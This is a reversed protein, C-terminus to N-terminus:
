RLLIPLMPWPPRGFVLPDHFIRMSRYVSPDKLASQYVRRPLWFCALGFGSCTYCKKFTKPTRM